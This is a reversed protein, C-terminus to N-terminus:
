NSETPATGERTATVAKGDSIAMLGDIVLEDGAKVGSSLVALGDQMRDITVDQRKAKGDTIVFVSNGSQTRLVATEPIVLADQQVGLAITSNAFMGPWLSEDDNAVRARAVFTGSSVNVENDVYELVGKGLPTPGSQESGFVDVAVDGQAMAARLSPLATQPLTIQVRIPKITNITVLATTDNAKVNNGVTAAITGTRGSIPATIRSYSLQVRINDLNAKSAALAAGQAKFEAQANDLASQSVFKQAFLSKAREYQVRANNLQAEDRLVNAALQKEQAQLARDDLIFLTDGAQVDQGDKFLVERVQGDMRSRVAVTEYAVVSGVGRLTLPMAKTQVLDTVVALAAPQKKETEGSTWYHWGAGGAAAVIVVLLLRSTPRRKM